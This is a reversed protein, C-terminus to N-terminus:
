RRWRVSKGNLLKELMDEVKDMQRQQSTSVGGGSRHGHFGGEHHKGGGTNKKKSTNAPILFQSPLTM